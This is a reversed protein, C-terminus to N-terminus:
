TGASTARIRPLVATKNMGDKIIETEVSSPQSMRAIQAIILELDELLAAVKPDDAAPSDLLLRTNTLLDRAQGAIQPDVTGQTEARFETLLAEASSLHDAVALRYATRNVGSTSTSPSTSTSAVTSSGSTQPVQLRTMRGIGIGIVLMAALGMGWTMWTKRTDVRKRFRRQQQISAWMEEKPTPPVDDLDALTNKLFEEFREETMGM